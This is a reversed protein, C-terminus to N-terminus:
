YVNPFDREHAACHAAFPRASELNNSPATTTHKARPTENKQRGNEATKQKRARLLDAVHEHLLLLLLPVGRGGSV